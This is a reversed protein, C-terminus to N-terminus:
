GGKRRSDKGLLRAVDCASLSLGRGADLAARLRRDLAAAYKGGALRSRTRNRDRELCRECQRRGPAAERGCRCRGEPRGSAVPRGSVGEPPVSVADLATDGESRSEADEVPADDGAPEGEGSDALDAVTASKGGRDLWATVGGADHIVEATAERAVAMKSALMMRSATRAAIGARELVALWQGHRCEAKAEALLEGARLYEGIAEVSGRRYARAAEGAREALDALRNSLVPSDPASPPVIKM